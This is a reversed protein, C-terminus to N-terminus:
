TVRLLTAHSLELLKKPSLPFVARPSGAAAWVEDLVMLDEDMVTRLATPHGFPPVGGISYGTAEKVRNADAKGLTVGLREGLADTDVRNPGSVLVLLPTDDALFVLSKVIAAVPAGVAAAAESATHTSEAMETVRLDLGETAALFRAVSKQTSV